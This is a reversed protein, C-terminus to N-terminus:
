WTDAAEVGTDLGGNGSTTINNTFSFGGTIFKGIGLENFSFSVTSTTPSSGQLNTYLSGKDALRNSDSQFNLYSDLFDGFQTQTPKDGTEFFTKLVARTLEAM